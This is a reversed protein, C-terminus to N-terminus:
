NSENMGVLSPMVERHFLELSRMQEKHTLSGFALLIVLYNHGIFRAQAELVRRVSDPNGVVLAGAARAQDFDASISIPVEAGRVKWLWALNQFWVEHARRAVLEAEVDTDAIFMARMVGVIPQEIKSGFARREATQADWQKRFADTLEKVRADPGLSVGHMGHQAAFVPGFEGRLGYWLPPYPNQLPKMVVPVDRLSYRTSSHNIRDCTFGQHLIDFCHGFAEDADSIDDGFADFEHPSIGKGLGLDLRGNSLHDLMCIEEYLRLPHYLPLLTL